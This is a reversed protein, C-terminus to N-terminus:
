KLFRGSYCAEEEHFYSFALGNATVMEEFESRSYRKANSPAYWDYNTAKSMEFGWEENWYCKLFNWYVFRQVDYRGGKIGLLPIDPADFTANVESLRKGLETLQEAFQWMKDASIEHTRQRFYDDLLERPLAKKAYVYCAFEGGPKTISSLHQFTTEPEETHMIVQDCLVFDISDPTLGTNAIDSRFFYLNPIEAYTQAALNVADSIDVGIVTSDPALRALWSSKYGLGCGADLIFRRNALFEALAAETDFGYLKLFWDYQTEYFKQRAELGAVQQWKDSFVDNTQTQNPSNNAAARTEIFNGTVEIESVFLSQLVDKM